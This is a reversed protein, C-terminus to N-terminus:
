TPVSFSGSEDDDSDDDDGHRKLGVQSGVGSWALPYLDDSMPPPLPKRRRRQINQPVLSMLEEFSKKYNELWPIAVELHHFTRVYDRNRKSSLFTKCKQIFRDAGDDLALRFSCGTQHTSM